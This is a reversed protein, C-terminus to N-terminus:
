DKMRDGAAALIGDSARPLLRLAAQREMGAAECADAAAPLDLGMPVGGMGGVRMQTGWFDVLGWLM